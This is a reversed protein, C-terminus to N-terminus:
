NKLQFIVSVNARVAIKGLAVTEAPQGTGRYNDNAVQTQVQANLGYYSPPFYANESIKIPPGLSQGLVKAMKGAKEKAALLALERAQDRYDKLKTTQFEIGYVYNVGAQLLRTVLDELKGVDRLTVAVRTTTFYGLFRQAGERDTDWRPEISLYDTQIDKEAVGCDRVAGLSQKLAVANKHKAAIIDNDRSEIGFNIVVKDPKVYVAAEGTVSIKPRDDHGPSQAHTPAAAAASLFSILIAVYRM